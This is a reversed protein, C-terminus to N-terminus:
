ENLNWIIQLLFGLKKVNDVHRNNARKASMLLFLSFVLQTTAKLFCSEQFLHQFSWSIRQFTQFSIHIFYLWSWVGYALLSISLDELYSNGYFNEACLKAKGSVGSM